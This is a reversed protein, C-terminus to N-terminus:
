HGADALVADPAAARAASGTGRADVLLWTAAAVLLAAGLLHLTVLAIPLGTVEVGVRQAVPPGGALAAERM